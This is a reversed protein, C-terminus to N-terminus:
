INDRNLKNNGLRKIESYWDNINVFYKKFYTRITLYDYTLFCLIILLITNTFTNIIEIM